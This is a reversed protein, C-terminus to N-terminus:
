AVAASIWGGSEERCYRRLRARRDAAPAACGIFSCRGIDDPPAAIRACFRSLVAV